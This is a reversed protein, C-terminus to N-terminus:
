LGLFSGVALMRAKGGGDSIRWYYGVTVGAFIGVVIEPGLYSQDAHVDGHDDWTRIFSLQARQTGFGVHSVGLSVRMADQGAEAFLTPGGYGGPDEWGLIVGGYLSAGLPGGYRLGGLPFLQARAKPAAAEAEGAETPQGHLRAASLVLALVLAWRIRLPTM